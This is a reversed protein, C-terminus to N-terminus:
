FLSYIFPAAATGGVLMLLGFFAFVVVIPLMWWKKNTALFEWVEGVLTPRGRETENTFEDSPGPTKAM